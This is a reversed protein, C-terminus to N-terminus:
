ITLIRDKYTLVSDNATIAGLAPKGEVDLAVEAGNRFLNTPIDITEGSGIERWEAGFTANRMYWRITFWRTPKKVVSRGVSVVCENHVFKALPSVEVGGHVFHEFDFAPFRRLVLTDAFLCSKKPLEPLPEGDCSYEAKCRLLISGEIYRPDIKLTRTNQGGEYFLDEESNILTEGQESVRFWWYKVAATEPIVGVLRLTATVSRISEEAIPNFTWSAPKDLSLKPAIAVSTSSLTTSAQVRLINGNRRDVIEATFVLIVPSLYPINKYVTLSGSPRVTYGQTGPTILYKALEGRLYEKGMYKKAVDSPLEYWSASSLEAYGSMQVGNPDDVWVRPTLTLPTIERDPIFEATEACHKQTLSGGEAVLSTSINMPDYM